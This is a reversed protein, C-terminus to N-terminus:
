FFKILKDQYDFTLRLQCSCRFQPDTYGLNALLDEEEKSIQPLTIREDIRVACSACTLKYNCEAFDPTVVESRKLVTALRSNLRGSVETLTSGM